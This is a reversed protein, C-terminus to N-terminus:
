ELKTKIHPNYAKKPYLIFNSTNKIQWLCSDENPHPERGVFVRFDSQNKCEIEVKVPGLQEQAKLKLFARDMPKVELNLGRVGKDLDIM